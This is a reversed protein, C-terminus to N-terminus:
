EGEGMEGLLIETARNIDNRSNILAQRARDEAFGMDQLERLAKEDAEVPGNNVNQIRLPRIGSEQFFQILNLLRDFSDGNGPQNNNNNNENNRHEFFEFFNLGRDNANNKKELIKKAGTCKMILEQIPIKNNIKEVNPLNQINSKILYFSILSNKRNKIIESENLQKKNSDFLIFNADKMKFYFKLDTLLESVKIDKEVETTLKSNLFYIEIKM